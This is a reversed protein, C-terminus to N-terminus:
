YLCIENPKFKRALFSEGEVKYGEKKLVDVLDSCEQQTLSGKPAQHFLIVKHNADLDFFEEKDTSHSLNPMEYSVKVIGNNDVMASAPFFGHNSSYLIRLIREHLSVAM